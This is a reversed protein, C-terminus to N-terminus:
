NEKESTPNRCDCYKDHYFLWEENFVEIRRAAEFLTTPRVDDDNIWVANAAYHGVTRVILQPHAIDSNLDVTPPRLGCPMPPVLTTMIM